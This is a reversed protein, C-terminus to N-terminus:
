IKSRMRHDHSQDDLAVGTVSAAEVAAEVEADVSAEM